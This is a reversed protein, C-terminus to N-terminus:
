LKELAIIITTLVRTPEVDKHDGNITPLVYKTPLLLHMGYVLKYPTYRTIVKYTTM